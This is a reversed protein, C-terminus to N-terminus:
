ARLSAAKVKESELLQKLSEPMTWIDNRQLGYGSCTLLYPGEYHRKLGSAAEETLSGGRRLENVFQM